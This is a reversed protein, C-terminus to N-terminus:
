SFAGLSRLRVPACGHMLFPNEYLPAQTRGVPLSFHAFSNPQQTPLRPRSQVRKVHRQSHEPPLTHTPPFPHRFRMRLSPLLPAPMAKTTPRRKPGCKLPPPPAAPAAWLGVQSACSLLAAILCFRAFLIIRLALIIRARRTLCHGPHDRCIANRLLANEPPSKPGADIPSM